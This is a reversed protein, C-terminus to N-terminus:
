FNKRLKCLKFKGCSAIKRKKESNRFYLTNVNFFFIPKGPRCKFNGTPNPTFFIATLIIVMTALQDEYEFLKDSNKKFAEETATFPNEETSAATKKADSSSPNNKQRQNSSSPNNKQRQKTSSKTASPATASVTAASALDPIESEAAAPASGTETSKKRKTTRNGLSLRSPRALISCSFDEEIEDNDDVDKDKDKDKDEVVEDDKDKDKDKDKELTLPNKKIKIGGRKESNKQGVHGSNFISKILLYSDM